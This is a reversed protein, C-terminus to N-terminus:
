TCYLMIFNIISYYRIMSRSCQEIVYLIIGKQAQIIVVKTWLICSDNSSEVRREIVYTYNSTKTLNGFSVITKQESCSINHMGQRNVPDISGSYLTINVALESMNQLPMLSSSYTLNCSVQIEVSEKKFDYSSDIQM